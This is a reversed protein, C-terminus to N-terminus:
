VRFELPPLLSPLRNPLTPDPLYPHIQNNMENADNLGDDGVDTIDFM